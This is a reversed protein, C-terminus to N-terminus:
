LEVTEYTHGNLCVTVVLWGVGADVCRDRRHGDSVIWRGNAAERGVITVMECVRDDHAVTRLAALLGVVDQPPRSIKTGLIM